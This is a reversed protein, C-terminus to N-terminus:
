LNSAQLVLGLFLRVAAKLHLHFIENLELATGDKRKLLVAICISHRHYKAM